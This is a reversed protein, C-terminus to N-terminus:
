SQGTVYSCLETMRNKKNVDKLDAYRQIYLRVNLKKHTLTTQIVLNYTCLRVNLILRNPVKLPNSCTESIVRARIGEMVSM